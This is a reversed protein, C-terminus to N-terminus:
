IPKYMKRDDFVFWALNDGPAGKTIGSDYREPIMAVDDGKTALVYSGKGAKNTLRISGTRDASTLTTAGTPFLTFEVGNM